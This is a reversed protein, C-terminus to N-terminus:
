ATAVKLLSFSVRVETPFATSSQYAIGSGNGLANGVKHDGHKMGVDVELPRVVELEEPPTMVADVREGVIEDM